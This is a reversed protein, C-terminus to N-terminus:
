GAGHHPGFMLDTTTPVPGALVSNITALAALATHYRM